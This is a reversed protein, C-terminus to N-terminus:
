TYRLGIALRKMVFIGTWTLGPESCVRRRAEGSRSDSQEALARMWPRSSERPKWSPPLETRTTPQAQRPTGPILTRALLCSRTLLAPDVGPMEALVNYSNLDNEYFRAGLEVRLQIPMGSQALRVLMNYHEAALVLTPVADSTTARNGQVRVTGHEMAGPTLAVGAGLARLRTLIQQAPTASTPGPLPPNGTQVPGNGESPQMRDTRLFETQPRSMLVIAGRLRPGLRDIDAASSDGVYIPTGTLVGATPPSWAEAYGILPMYRPATVEVTLKELSWGHGFEFPELRPNALGWQRLREVAWRAAELHAPSGTLRPGLVDTLRHFMVSAEASRMGEAKIANITTQENRQGQAAGVHLLGAVVILAVIGIAKGRM